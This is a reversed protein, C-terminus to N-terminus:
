KLVVIMLIPAPINKRIAPNSSEKKTHEVFKYKIFLEKLFFFAKILNLPM